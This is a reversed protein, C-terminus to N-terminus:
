RWGTAPENTQELRAITSLIPMTPSIRRLGHVGAALAVVAVCITLAPVSEVAGLVDIGTHARVNVALVSLANNVAHALIAPYISHTWHVLGGLFLGLLFLAPFQWPNLHAAAFLFASGVIAAAAGHHYHLGTFVLGRFLVEECLAPILVVALVVTLASPMDTILQIRVLMQEASLPPVWAIAELGGAVVQDFASALLAAGMAALLTSWLAAMPVANLLFVDEPIWRYLRLALAALALLSLEAAVLGIHASSEGLVPYVIFQSLPFCVVVLLLIQRM